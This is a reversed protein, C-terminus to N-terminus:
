PDVVKFLSPVSRRMSTAMLTCWLRRSLSYFPVNNFHASTIHSSLDCRIACCIPMSLEEKKWECGRCGGQDNHQGFGVPRMLGLGLSPGAPDLMVCFSMCLTTLPSHSARGELDEV